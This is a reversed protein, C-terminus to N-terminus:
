SETDASSLTLGARVLADRLAVFSQEAPVSSKSVIAATAHELERRTEEDLTTSTNIIVPIPKTVDDGKLRQLVEFGTMEPMILDLFIVEPKEERAKRIGEEGNTADMIVFRGQAALLGKLTYRAAEEDDIILVTTCQATEKLANFHLLLWERDVPKLRFDLTGVSLAREKADFDATVLVPIQQTATEAKLGALWQWRRQEDAPFDM